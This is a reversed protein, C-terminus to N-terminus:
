VGSGTLIKKAIGLQGRWYAADVFDPHMTNIMGNDDRGEGEPEGLLVNDIFKMALAIKDEADKLKYTLAECDLKCDELLMNLVGNVESLDETSM